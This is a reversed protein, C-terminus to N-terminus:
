RQIGAIKEKGRGDRWKTGDEEEMELMRQEKM